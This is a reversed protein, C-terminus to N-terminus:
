KNNKETIQQLHTQIKEVQKQIKELKKLRKETGLVWRLIAVLIVLPVLYTLILFVLPMYTQSAQFPYSDIM